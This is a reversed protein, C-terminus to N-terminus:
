LKDVWKYREEIERTKREVWDRIPDEPFILRQLDYLTLKKKPALSHILRDVNEAQKQELMMRNISNTLDAINCNLQSYLNEQMMTSNCNQQYANVIGIGLYPNCPVPYAILDNWGDMVM